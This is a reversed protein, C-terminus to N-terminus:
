RRPPEGSPPYNWLALVPAAPNDHEHGFVGLCATDLLFHRGEVVPLGIWRAALVRGFHGHSFLALDGDAAKIREIIRDARESVQAPSEGGPCGDSFLCWGPHKSLIQASTLGEYDGYNWEALDPETQAQAGLGALECTHRARQRPSVLVQAFRIERLHPALLLAKRVGEPSLPVETNGTHQGSQSWATDGHRILFAKSPVSM